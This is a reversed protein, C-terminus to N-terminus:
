VPPPEAAYHREALRCLYVEREPHAEIRFGASRLMSEVAARNPIFWNTPDGSYREEVFFLKPYDAADFVDWDHFSHDDALASVEGSGRQLSQFLLRDGAVHERILDLALLPHRLHYFVGMFLVLDFREGIRGVDYVSMQRLEIDARAREAAFRAQALYHPDSDIALVRGAGRRKMEIAYFGANCGIDLVSCGALDEPIVQSFGAWKCAPYDGLFHDPATAIGDIRLNHFWPGLEDIRRATTARRATAEDPRRFSKITM